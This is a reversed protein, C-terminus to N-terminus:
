ILFIVYNIFKYLRIQWFHNLWMNDFLGYKSPGSFLMRHNSFQNYSRFLKKLWLNVTLIKKYFFLRACHLYECSIITLPWLAANTHFFECRVRRVLVWLVFVWNLSSICEFFGIFLVTSLLTDVTFALLSFGGGSSKSKM